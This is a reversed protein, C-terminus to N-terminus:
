YLKSVKWDSNILQLNGKALIKTGCALSDLEAKIPLSILFDENSEFWSGLDIHLEFKKVRQSLSRKTLFFDGSHQNCNRFAITIVDSV